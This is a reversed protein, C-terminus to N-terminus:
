SMRLTNKRHALTASAVQQRVALREANQKEFAAFEKAKSAIQKKQAEAQRAAEAKARNAEAIRAADSTKKAVQEQSLLPSYPPAEPEPEYRNEREQAPIYPSPSTASYVPSDKYMGESPDYMITEAELARPPQYSEGAADIRQKKSPPPPPAALEAAATALDTDSMSRKAPKKQPRPRFKAFSGSGQTPPRAKLRQRQYGALMEPKIRDRIKWDFWRFADSLDFVRDYERRHLFVVTNAYLIQQDPRMFALAPDFLAMCGHYQHQTTKITSSKRLVHREVLEKIKSPEYNLHEMESQVLFRFLSKGAGPRHNCGSEKLPETRARLTQRQFTFWGYPHNAESEQEDEIELTKEDEKVKSEDPEPVIAPTLPLVVEAPASGLGALRLIENAIPLFTEYDGYGKISRRLRELLADMDGSRPAVVAALFARAVVCLDKWRKDADVGPPLTDEETCSFVLRLQEQILRLFRFHDGSCINVPPPTGIGMWQGLVALAVRLGDYDRETSEDTLLQFLLPAFPLRTVDRNDESFQGNDLAEMASYAQYASWLDASCVLLTNYHNDADSLYTVMHFRNRPMVSEISQIINAAHVDKLEVYVLPFRTKRKKESSKMACVRGRSHVLGQRVLLQECEPFTLIRFRHSHWRSDAFLPRLPPGALCEDDDELRQLWLGRDIAEHIQDDAWEQDAFVKILNAASPELERLVMHCRRKCENFAQKLPAAGKVVPFISPPVLQGKATEDYVSLLFESAAELMGDFYIANTDHLKIVRCLYVFIAGLAAPVEFKIEPPHQDVKYTASSLRQTLMGGNNFHHTNLLFPNVDGCEWKAQNVVSLMESVLAPLTDVGPERVFAPLKPNSNIILSILGLRDEGRMWLQHVDSVSMNGAFQEAIRKTSALVAEVSFCTWNEEVENIAKHEAREIPDLNKIETALDTEVQAFVHPFVLKRSEAGAMRGLATMLHQRIENTAKYEGGPLHVEVLCPYKSSYSAVAHVHYNNALKLFHAAFDRCDDNLVLPQTNFALLNRSTALPLSGAKDVLKPNMGLVLLCLFLM